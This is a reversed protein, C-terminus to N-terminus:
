RRGPMGAHILWVERAALLVDSRQDGPPCDLLWIAPVSTIEARVTSVWTWCMM